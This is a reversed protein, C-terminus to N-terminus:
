FVSTLILLDRVCVASRTSKSWALYIYLCSVTVCVVAYLIVGVGVFVNVATLLRENIPTNVAVLSIVTVPIEVLIFEGILLVKILRGLLPCPHLLHLRCFSILLTEVFRYNEYRSIIIFFESPIFSLYGATFLASSLWVLSDGLVFHYLVVGLTCIVIATTASCISWFYLGSFRKFTIYGIVIVQFQCM